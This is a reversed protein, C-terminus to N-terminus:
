EEAPATAAAEIAYRYYGDDNEREGVAGYKKLAIVYWLTDAASFGTAEVIEPVTKPGDALFALVRNLNEQHTRSRRYAATVKDQRAARLERFQRAQDETFVGTESM